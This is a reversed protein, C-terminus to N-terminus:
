TLEQPRKSGVEDVGNDERVQPGQVGGSKATPSERNKEKPRVGGSIVERSRIGGRSGSAGIISLFVGDDKRM